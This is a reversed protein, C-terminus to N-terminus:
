KCNGYVFAHRSTIKGEWLKLIKSSFEVVPSKRILKVDAYCSREHYTLIKNEDTETDIMFVSPPFLFYAIWINQIWFLFSIQASFFHMYSLLMIKKVTQRTVSQIKVFNSLDPKEFSDIFKQSVGHETSLHFCVFGAKWQWLGLNNNHAWCGYSSVANQSSETAVYDGLYVVSLTWIPRSILRMYKSEETFFGAGCLNRSDEHTKLCAM